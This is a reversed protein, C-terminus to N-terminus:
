KRGLDGDIDGGHQEKDDDTGSSIGMVGVEEKDNRDDMM